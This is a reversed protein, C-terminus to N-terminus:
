GKGQEEIDCDPYEAAIANAEDMTLGRIIVLYTKGDGQKLFKSMMWGTKNKWKIRSWDTGWELIEVTEGIPIRDVLAAMQSPKARLNVNKGKDAAVTAMQKEKEPEPAPEPETKTNYDVKPLKGHYAWKGISTDIKATPSTMHTIELPYVNTVTGIHYYDTLDGTYNSGGQRYKEPLDYGSGGPGRGKLVVEGPQLDASSIIKQLKVITYRAAWNTGSLGSADGGARRIAGKVMGICDCKGDTGDHGLAYAPQEVYISKVGDVYKEASIM